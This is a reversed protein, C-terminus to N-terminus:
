VFASKTRLQQYEVEESHQLHPRPQRGEENQGILIAGFNSITLHKKLVKKRKM